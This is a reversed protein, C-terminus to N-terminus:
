GMRKPPDTSVEDEVASLWTGDLDHGDGLARTVDWRQQM